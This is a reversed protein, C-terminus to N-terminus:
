SHKVPQCAGISTITIVSAFGVLGNEPPCWGMKDVWSAEAEVIEVAGKRVVLYASEGCSEAGAKVAGVIGLEVLWRTELTGDVRRLGTGTVSGGSDGVGSGDGPTGESREWACDEGTM